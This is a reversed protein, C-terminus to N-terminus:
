RGPDDQKKRKHPQLIDQELRQIRKVIADCQAKEIAANEALYELVFWLLFSLLMGIGLGAILFSIEGGTM